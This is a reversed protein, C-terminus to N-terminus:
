RCRAVMSSIQDNWGDGVYQINPHFTMHAGGYDRHEYVTVSCGPRCAISSIQDNWHDGVYRRGTGDTIARQEGEFNAHQYYICGNFNVQPGGSTGIPGEAAAGQGAFALGAAAISAVAISTARM